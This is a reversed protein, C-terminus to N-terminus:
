TSVGRNRADIIKAQNEATRLMQENNFTGVGRSNTGYKNLAKIQEFILGGDRLEDANTENAARKSIDRAAMGSLLAKEQDNLAKGSSTVGIRLMNLMDETSKVPDGGVEIQGSNEMMAHSEDVLKQQAANFRAAAAASDPNAALAAEAARFETGHIGSKYSDEAGFKQAEQQIVRDGSKGTARVRLEYEHKNLDAQLARESVKLKAELKATGQAGSTSAKTSEALAKAKDALNGDGLGALFGLTKSGAVGFAGKTVRGVKAAEEDTLWEGTKRNLIKGDGMRHYGRKNLEAQTRDRGWRKTIANSANQLAAGKAYRGLNNGMDKIGTADLGKQALGQLAGLAQGGMKMIPIVAAVPVLQLLCVMIFEWFGPDTSSIIYTLLRTAGWVFAIMPYIFLVRAFETLWKKFWKETNPLLYLVFAIPSIIILVTVLVDRFVMVALVLLLGVAVAGLNLAILILGGAFMVISTLGGLAGGFGIAVPNTSSPDKAAFGEIFEKLNVGLINSIDVAAACIYFSINVLIAVIVLRPLIKKVSYNSFM